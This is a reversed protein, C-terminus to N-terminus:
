VTDKVITGLVGNIFSSSKDNGFEKSLEVAEDILVKQPEPSDCTLEYIANRLVALDIKAIKDIPWEPAALTIKKDIEPLKILIDAIDESSQNTDFSYSFLKQVTSRRKQHRPDRSTKM